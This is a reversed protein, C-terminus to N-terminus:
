WCNIYGNVPNVRCNRQPAPANNQAPTRLAQGLNLLIKAREIENTREMAAAVNPDYSPTSSRSANARAASENARATEQQAEALKKQLELKQLEVEANMIKYVCDSFKDSGKRFGYNNECIYARREEPKMNAMKAEIKQQEIKQKEAILQKKKNEEALKAEQKEKNKKAIQEQENLCRNYDEINNKNKKCKIGFESELLRLKEKKEYETLVEKTLYPQGAKFEGEVAKGNAYYYTGNGNFTGDKFEGIYIDGNTFILTGKGNMKELSIQGTYKDGNSFFITGKGNMMKSNLFDGEFYSGDAKFIKGKGTVKGNLIEGEYRDGKFNGNEYFYEGKGHIEGNLFDGQYKDKNAFFMIGKGNAKGKLFEGQYKNGNPWIFIGKGTIAAVNTPQKLENEKFVYEGEYSGSVDKYHGICIENKTTPNAKCNTLEGKQAYAVNIFLFLILGWIIKKM